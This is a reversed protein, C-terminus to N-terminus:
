KKSFRKKCPGERLAYLGFFVSSLGDRGVATIGMGRVALGGWCLLTEVGEGLWICNLGGALLCGL